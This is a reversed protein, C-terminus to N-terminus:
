RLGFQNKSELHHKSVFPGSAVFNYKSLDVLAARVPGGRKLFCFPM